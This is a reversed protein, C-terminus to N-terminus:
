PISIENDGASAVIFEHDDRSDPANQPPPTIGDDDPAAPEPVALPVEGLVGIDCGVPAPRQAM